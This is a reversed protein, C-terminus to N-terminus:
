LALLESSETSIHCLFSYQLQDNTHIDDDAVHTVLHFAFPQQPAVVQKSLDGCHHFSMLVMTKYLQLFRVEKLDKNLDTKSGSRPRKATYMPVVLGSFLLPLECRISLRGSKLFDSKSMLM